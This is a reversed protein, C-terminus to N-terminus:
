SRVREQARQVDAPLPWYHSQTFDDPKLALIAAKGQATLWVKAGQRLTPKITPYGNLNYIDGPDAQMYGKTILLAATNSRKWTRLYIMMNRNLAYRLLEHIEDQTLNMNLDSKL